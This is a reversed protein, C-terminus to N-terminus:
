TERYFDDFEPDELVRPEKAKGKVLYTTVYTTFYKIAQKTFRPITKEGAELFFMGGYSPYGDRGNAYNSGYNWLMWYPVTETAEAYEQRLEIVDLYSVPESLDFIQKWRALRKEYTKANRPNGGHKLPDYGADQWKKLDGFDGLREKNLISNDRPNIHSAMDEDLTYLFYRLLNARSVERSLGSHSKTKQELTDVMTKFAKYYIWYNLKRGVESVDPIMRSWSDIYSKFVTM